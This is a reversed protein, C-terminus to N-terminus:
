KQLKKVETELNEVKQVLSKLVSLIEDREEGAKAVAAVAKAKAKAKGAPKAKAKPARKELRDGEQEDEPLAEVPIAARLPIWQDPSIKPAFFLGEIREVTCIDGHMFPCPAGPYQAAPIHSDPHLKRLKVDQGEKLEHKSITPPNQMEEEWGEMPKWGKDPINLSECEVEYYHNESGYVNNYLIWKGGDYMLRGDGFPYQYYEPSFSNNTMVYIGNVENVGDDADDGGAGSVKLYSHVAAISLASEEGGVPYDGFSMNETDWCVSMDSSNCLEYTIGVTEPASNESVCIGGTRIKLLKKADSAARMTHVVPDAVPDTERPGPNRVQALDFTPLWSGTM